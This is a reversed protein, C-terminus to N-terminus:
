CKRGIFVDESFPSNPIDMFLGLLKELKTKQGFACGFDIHLIKGDDTIMINDDLFRSHSIIKIFPFIKGHRDALQLVIGSIVFGLFTRFLNEKREPSQEIFEKLAASSKSDKDKDATKFELFPHADEVCEILGETKDVPLV